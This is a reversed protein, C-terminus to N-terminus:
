DNISLPKADRDAEIILRDKDDDENHLDALATFAERVAGAGYRSRAERISTAYCTRALTGRLNTSLRRSGFGNMMKRTSRKM